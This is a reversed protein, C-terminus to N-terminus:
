LGLDASLALADKTYSATAWITSASTSAAANYDDDYVVQFSVPKLASVNVGVSAERAANNWAVYFKAVDKIEYAAALNTWDQYDASVTTGYSSSNALANAPVTGFTEAAQTQGP